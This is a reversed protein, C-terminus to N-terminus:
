QSVWDAVKYITKVLRKKRYVGEGPGARIPHSPDNASIVSGVDNTNAEVSVMWTGDWSDVFGCHAIRKLESLYIGFVDGIRPETSVCSRADRGMTKVPYKGREWIVRSSPFLAPAWGNKPNDIGAENLCWCVYAACYSYGKPLGIYRLYKEVEPGDNKGTKERVGIQTTYIQRLTQRPSTKTHTDQLSALDQTEVGGDEQKDAKVARVGEVKDRVTKKVAVGLVLSGILAILGM